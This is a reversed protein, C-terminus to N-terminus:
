ALVERALTDVSDACGRLTVLVARGDITLWAADQAALALLTLADRVALFLADDNCSCTCVAVPERVLVNDGDIWRGDGSTVTCGGAVAAMMRPVTVAPDVAGAVVPAAVTLVHAHREVHASM